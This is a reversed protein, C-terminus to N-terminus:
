INSYFDEVKSAISKWDVTKAKDRAGLSLQNIVCRNKLLSITQDILTFNDNQPILVGSNNNVYGSNGGVDNTIVPLGCSTAELISNCATSNKMPLFLLTAKQYQEILEKDNLNNLISISSNYQIKHNFDKRLVVNVKLDNIKEKIRPIAYNFAEFDRLHQGVFLITNDEKKSVDPTFFSTDIGHPIYKVKDTHLWNKLFDVQNKGVAIAGNLKKFNSNNFTAQLIEPPKHFSAIFKYKKKIKNLEIGFRIDREGNLYHVIGGNSRRLILKCLEYDKVVSMTNYSGTKKTVFSALLKALKYPFKSTLYPLTEANVYDALQGYGSNQAHHNSRHHIIINAM